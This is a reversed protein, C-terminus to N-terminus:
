KTRTKGYVPPATTRTKGYLTPMVLNRPQGWAALGAKPGYNACPTPETSKAPEDTGDPQAARKLTKSLAYAEQAFKNKRDYLTQRGIGLRDAVRKTVEDDGLYFAVFAAYRTEHEPMDGLAHIAMNFYTMDPHNRANPERGGKGPLLRALINKAPADTYYRRTRSWQVWERCYEDLFDNKKM